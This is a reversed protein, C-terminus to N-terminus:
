RLLIGSVSSHGLPRLCRDQFGAYGRPYRPNSDRRRRWNRTTVDADSHAVTRNDPQHVLSQVVSPPDGSIVEVAAVASEDGAPQESDKNKAESASGVPRSIKLKGIEECLTAWPMSTYTDVIDGRPGHSILEIIDKRGGHTRALTVFTRRLDHVRRRRLGLTELDQRLAYLVQSKTLISGDRDPVIIDDGEPDRGVHERWGLSWWAALVEALAPHVPIYRPVGTKTGPEVKMRTSSFKSTIALRGLPRTDADYDSWKRPVAAGVRPGALSLLTWLVRRYEPLRQDYILKEIEGHEFIAQGRWTPDKDINKPLLHKRLICPSVTIVADM